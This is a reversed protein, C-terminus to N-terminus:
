FTDKYKRSLTFTELESLESQLNFHNTLSQKLEHNSLALFPNIKKQLGLKFPVTPQGISRLAEVESKYEQLLANTPMLQEAFEINSETYEHACYILTDDSLRCLKTLSAHMQEPSGEFLRGCGVSFLTDGVFALQENVYGIHDITHGTLEVCRLSIANGLLNVQTDEICPESVFPFRAANPGYVRADPYLELLRKVGGIHDPHHHTILIDTLPLQLQKLTEIVPEADGPDVVASANHNHMLWIYNDRFAPVATISYM